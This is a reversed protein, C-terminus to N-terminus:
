PEWPTELFHNRLMHQVNIPEYRNLLMTMTWEKMRAIDIHTARYQHSFGHNLTGNKRVVMMALILM